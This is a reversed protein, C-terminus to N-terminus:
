RLLILEPICNEGCWVFANQKYKIGLKKADNISIGLVLFSPEGEWLGKPDNGIGDLIVTKIQTLDSHLQSQTLQNQDSTLEVSAPNYATIFCATEYGTNQFLNSLGECYEDIKLIFKPDSLVEFHTVKYADILEESLETQLDPM